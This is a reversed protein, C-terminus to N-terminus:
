YGKKMGKKVKKVPMMLMGLSPPPVGASPKKGFPPAKKGGFLPKKGKGFSPKKAM